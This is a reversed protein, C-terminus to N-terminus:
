LSLPDPSFLIKEMAAQLEVHKVIKEVPLRFRYTWNTLLITGPINIREDEPNPWVMEPIIALYEQLLNIHFLSPTHHSEWLIEKRQSLTLHPSYTWQKYTAFAKAEAKCDQWWLTLTESDHTSVTTLSVQPYYELPIFRKDKEWMREWRMVKTGPIGLELLCPRVMPPVTGLDEGIPLMPSSSILMELIERGQPEWLSMEEPIFKGDVASHNRPIAWIRFFGIVHDLRYIDFFNSAYSLRNKWWQQHNKKLVEWHFIPFGWYQGQKNYVDPPAGASLTLDFYEPHFWVDASEPSVLIPMDGMLFIGRANAYEKLAKLQEYCLYQLTIFFSIEHFYREFLQDYEKKSPHKLEEPWTTWSTHGFQHKLMRFIAYPEVWPNKAVFEQFPASTLIKEKYEDYYAHLWNLKHTQVESFAIRQSKCMKRMSAFAKRLSSRKELFPLNYLSLNVFNLACSSIANYPSPDHESNNLPLLQIVDLKLKQCWDIIPILDFFEGIGCSRRSHLASLPLNVGHHQGIGIKQWQAATPSALLRTKLDEM